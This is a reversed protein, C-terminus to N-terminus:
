TKYEKQTTYERLLEKTDIQNINDIFHKIVCYYM